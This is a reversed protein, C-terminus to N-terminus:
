KANKPPPQPAASPPPPKVQFDKVGVMAVEYAGDRRRSVPTGSLDCEVTDGARVAIDESSVVFLKRGKLKAPAALDIELTVWAVYGASTSHGSVVADHAVGAVKGLRDRVPTAEDERERPAASADNPGGTWVVFALATAGAAARWRRGGAIARLGLPPPLVRKM